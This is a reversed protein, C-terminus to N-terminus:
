GIIRLLDVKRYEYRFKGESIPMVTFEDSIQVIGNADRYGVYVERVKSDRTFYKDSEENLTVKFEEGKEVEWAVEDKENIFETSEVCTVYFKKPEISSVKTVEFEEEFDYARPNTDHDCNGCHYTGDERVWCDTFGCSRCIDWECNCDPDAEKAGCGICSNNFGLKKM